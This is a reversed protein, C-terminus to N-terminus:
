NTDTYRRTVHVRRVRDRNCLSQDRTVYTGRVDFKNKKITIGDSFVVAECYDVLLRCECEYKSKLIEEFVHEFIQGYIQVYECMLKYEIKLPMTVLGLM